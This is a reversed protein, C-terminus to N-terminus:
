REYFCIEMEISTTFSCYPAHGTRLTVYTAQLHIFIAAILIYTYHVLGYALM